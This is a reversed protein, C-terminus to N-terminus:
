VAPSPDNKGGGEFVAEFDKMGVMCHCLVTHNSMFLM